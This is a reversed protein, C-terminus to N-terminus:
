YEELKALCTIHELDNLDDYLKELTSKAESISKGLKQLDYNGAHEIITEIDDLLIITIGRTLRARSNVATKTKTRRM